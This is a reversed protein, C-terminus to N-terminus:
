ICVKYVLKEGETLNIIENEVYFQAYGKSLFNDVIYNKEVKISKKMDFIIKITNLVFTQYLIWPYM